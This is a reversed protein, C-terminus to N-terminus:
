RYLLSRVSTCIITITFTNIIFLTMISIQKIYNASSVVDDILIMCLIINYDKITSDLNLGYLYIVVLGNCANRYRKM